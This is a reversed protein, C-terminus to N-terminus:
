RSAEIRYLCEKTRLFLTRGSVAPSAMFGSDLVNTALVEYNRAARLVTTVGERSFCYVHGDAHLLSAAFNGRLRERWVQRGSAAELCTVTGSDNVMFFLDDVLVPSPTQPVMSATRWAINTDTVDGRDGVRVALLETKGFGTIMYAIGGGYVPSAAGSFAPTPVKWLERGSAPDYGYLAKAGVSLMQAEGGVTVVLPTSYAKRLDGETQPKGDADLDNWEATRDTKWVTKGTAKDLAVLYQVDVGDMTLILVNEFLVLSSGPGRYHRCPLDSRKWLVAGTKTDLAATGYSGFHVYVRGLEVVPSPSAYCNLPNGLPEPRDAHFLKEQFRIAGSDTDVGIVFFDHGDVTAATLWLLGEMVVPTSWGRHPIPTKWRINEQESWHIPLGLPETGPAAALGNGWPGRFQPWQAPAWLAQVLVLLIVLRRQLPHKVTM